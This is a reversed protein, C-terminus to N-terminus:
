DDGKEERIEELRANTVLAAAHKNDWCSLCFPFAKEMVTCYESPAVTTLKGCKTCPEKGM